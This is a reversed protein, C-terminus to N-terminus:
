MCTVNPHTLNYRSAIVSWEKIELKLLIHYLWKKFEMIREHWIWAVALSNLLSHGLISFSSKWAETRSSHYDFIRPPPLRGSRSILTSFPRLKLRDNLYKPAKNSITKYILCALQFHSRSLLSQWGLQIRKHTIHTNVHNTPYISHQWFHISYM